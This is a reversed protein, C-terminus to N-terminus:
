KDSISPLILVHFIAYRMQSNSLIKHVFAQRIRSNMLPHPRSIFFIQLCFAFFCHVVLLFRLYIAAMEVTALRKLINLLYRLHLERLISTAKVINQAHIHAQHMFKTFPDAEFHLFVIFLFYFFLSCLHAFIFLFRMSKQNRYTSLSLFSLIHYNAYIFIIFPTTIKM